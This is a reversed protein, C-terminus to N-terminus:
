GGKIRPVLPVKYRTSCKVILCLPVVLYLCYMVRCLLDFSRVEMQGKRRDSKWEFKDKDLLEWERLFGPKDPDGAGGIMETFRDLKEDPVYFGTDVM